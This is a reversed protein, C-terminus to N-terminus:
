NSGKGKFFWHDNEPESDESAPAQPEVEVIPEPAPEELEIVEVTLDAVQQRLQANDAELDSITADKEALQEQHDIVQQLQEQSVTDGDGSDPVVVTVPVVVPATEPPDTHIDTM